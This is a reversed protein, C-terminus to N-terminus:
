GSNKNCHAASMIWRNSILSGGCSWSKEKNSGYGLLAQLLCHKLQDIFLIKKRKLKLCKRVLIIIM